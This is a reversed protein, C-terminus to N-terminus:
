GGFIGMAGLIWGVMATIVAGAALGIVKIAKRGDAKELDTVRESIKSCTARIGSLETKMETRLDSLAQGSLKEISSEHRELQVTHERLKEGHEALTEQIADLKSIIRDGNFAAVSRKIEDLDNYIRSQSDRLTQVSIATGASEKQVQEVAALRKELADAKNDIHRRLGQNESDMHQAYIEHQAATYVDTTTSISM